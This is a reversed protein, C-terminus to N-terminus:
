SHSCFLSSLFWYSVIAYLSTVIAPDPNSLDQGSYVWFCEEAHVLGSSTAANSSNSNNASKAYLVIFRMEPTPTDRDTSEAKRVAYLRCYKNEAWYEEDRYASAFPSTLARRHEALCHTSSVFTLPRSQVQRSAAM